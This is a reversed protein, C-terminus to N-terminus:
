PADVNLTAASGSSYLLFAESPDLTVGVAEEDGESDSTWMAPWQGYANWWYYCALTNGTSDLLTLNDGDVGDVDEMASIDITDQGVTFFAPAICTYGNSLNVKSYGVTNSSTVEAM